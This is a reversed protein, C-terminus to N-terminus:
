KTVMSQSSESLWQSSLFVMSSTPLLPGTQPTFVSIYPSLGAGWFGPTPDWFFYFERLVMHGPFASVCGRFWKNLGYGGRGFPWWLQNEPYKPRARDSVRGGGVHAWLGRPVACSWGVTPDLEILFPYPGQCRQGLYGLLRLFPYVFGALGMDLPQALLITGSSYGHKSHGVSSVCAAGEASVVTEKHGQRGRSLAMGSETGLNSIAEELFGWQNWM